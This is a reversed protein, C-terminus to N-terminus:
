SLYHQLYSIIKVPVKPAYEKLLSFSFHDYEENASDEEISYQYENLVLWNHMMVYHVEDNHSINERGGLFWYM